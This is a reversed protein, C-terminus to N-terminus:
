IVKALKLFLPFTVRIPNKWYPKLQEIVEPVPTYGQEQIFKQTASWTSLYGAFDDLFWDVEISFPPTPLEHFPLSITKYQDEVLKRAEDWYPHVTKYYFDQVIPDMDDNVSCLSYGWAAFVGGPKVIRKVEAFFKELDFWHLAQGVTLLDFQAESFSTKEAESKIYSINEARFANDLQTQSIDTAYVRKFYKSLHRAVQGNGTACDLATDFNKVYSFIFNYLADPYTPRFTAYLKSHGSFFDKTGM